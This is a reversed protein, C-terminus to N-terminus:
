ADPLAKDAAEAGALLVLCAHKVADKIVKGAAKNFVINAMEESIGKAL